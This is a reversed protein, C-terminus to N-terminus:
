GPTDRQPVTASRSGTTPEWDAAEQEQEQEQTRPRVLTYGVGNVTKLYRPQSPVPEIKERLRRVYGKVAQLTGEAADRWVQRAIQETTCVVGANVALYHLLKSETPTLRVTKGAITALHQLADVRLSGVVLVAPPEVTLGPRVRRTLAQLHALLQQPLFPKQLYADAGATLARVQAAANAAAGRHEATVLVLADHLPRMRQCLTLADVDPLATDLIVVDPQYEAWAQQAQLGTYARHVRHGYLRLLSVLMEALDQDHDVILVNM